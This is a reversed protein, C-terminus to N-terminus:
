GGCRERRGFAAYSPSRDPDRPASGSGRPRVEDVLRVFDADLEDLFALRVDVLELDGLGVQALDDTAAALGSAGQARQHLRDRRARALAREDLDEFLTM